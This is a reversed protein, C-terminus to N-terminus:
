HHNITIKRTVLPSKQHNEQHNEAFRSGNLQINMLSGPRGTQGVALHRHFRSNWWYNALRCGRFAMWCGGSSKYFALMFGWLGDLLGVVGNATWCVESSRYTALRCGDAGRMRGTPQWVVAGFATWCCRYTALRCGWLGDLLSYLVQLNSQGIKLSEDM